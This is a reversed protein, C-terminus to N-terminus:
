NVFNCLHFYVKEPIVLGCGYSKRQGMGTTMKDEYKPIDVDYFTTRFINIPRTGGKSSAQVKKVLSGTKSNFKFRKYSNSLRDIKVNVDKTGAFLIYDKYADTEYSVTMGEMSEPEVIDRKIVHCNSFRSSFVFYRYTKGQKSAISNQEHCWAYIAGNKTRTDGETHPIDSVKILTDYIKM